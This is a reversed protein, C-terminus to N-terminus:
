APPAVELIGLVGDWALAADVLGDVATGPPYCFKARSIRQGAGQASWERGVLVEIDGRASVPRYRIGDEEAPLALGHAPLTQIGRLIPRTGDLAVSVGFVKDSSIGQLHLLEVVGWGYKREGGLRVAGLASRWGPLTSELGTDTFCYGTLYVPDGTDTTRPSIFETEHLSGEDAAGSSADIATSAYSAICRAAIRRLYDENPTVDGSEDFAPWLYTACFHKKVTPGVKDYDGSAALRAALAGWLNRGTVYLRTQQVNGVKRWGIHL